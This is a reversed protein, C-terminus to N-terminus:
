AGYCVCWFSVRTTRLVPDSPAFVRAVAFHGRDSCGAVVPGTVLYYTAIITLDNLTHSRDFGGNQYSGWLVLLECIPFGLFYIALSVKLRHRMFVPPQTM